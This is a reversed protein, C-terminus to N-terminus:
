RVRPLTLERGEQRMVIATPRGEADLSFTLTIPRDGASFTTGSVHTLLLRGDGRAPQGYLRGGDLTINLIRGPALEYAGALGELAPAAAATSETSEAAAPVTANPAAAAPLDGVRTFRISRVLPNGYDFAVVTGAADRVLRVIMLRFMYTNRGVPRFESARDPAHELRATLGDAAATLQFVSGLEASEYRGDVGRLDAATPTWPQARRYRTTAGEMSRIEFADDSQFVIEFADESRFFPSPRPPQFRDASVPVLPPGNAVTLRGENAVLRLPEGAESFYLGARGAVDVGPAAVPGPRPAQPDVPPLFLDAVRGGLATASVPEFNCMVVVSVGNDTFRGLWTSYGAAGGSHSVMRGGPIHNVMLGRAYTLQRGSNLRAPEELKATVFPGLRGNTLADNWRLLDGATSVVTGGGRENGLRMHQRWGTEEQQYALAREGPSQLIDAVYASAGMGLPEFLRQRAFDAFPLFISDIARAVDRPETTGQAAAPAAALVLALLASSTLPIRSTSGHCRSDSPLSPKM